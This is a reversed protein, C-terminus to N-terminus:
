AGPKGAPVEDISFTVDGLVSVRTQWGVLSWAEQGREAVLVRRSPTFVWIVKGVGFDLLAQTKNTGYGMPVEGKEFEAQTDVEVVVDPPISLYNDDVQDLRERRVIAVDAARLVGKGMRLGAENTMVHYEEPVLSIM